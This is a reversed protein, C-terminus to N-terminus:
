CARSRTVVSSSPPRTRAEGEDILGSSLDADIAMQKGPMADLSFRAAVEAIRGSGRTIVVFNVIVLISFVILGVIFNNGMIFGGFAEIVQGAAGTGEHGQTLILRTSALNLALRLMTAVLLITPFSSFELARGIFLVNMMVLVSFTISLALSVDLLWRPMPLILTVLILMIGFAFILDGRVLRTSLGGFLDGLSPGSPAAGGEDGVTPDFSETIPEGGTAVLADQTEDTM